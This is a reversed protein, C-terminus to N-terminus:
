AGSPRESETLEKCAVRTYGGTAPDEYSLSFALVACVSLPAQTRAKVPEVSGDSRGTVKMQTIDDGPIPAFPLALSLAVFAVLSRESWNLREEGTLKSIM